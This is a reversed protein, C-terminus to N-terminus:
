ESIKRGFAACSTTSTIGSSRPIRRSDVSRTSAAVTTTSTTNTTTGFDANTGAKGTVGGKTFSASTADITYTVGATNTITITDGSVATVAGGVIPQGNGAPLNALRGVLSPTITTQASGPVACALVGLVLLCLVTIRKM